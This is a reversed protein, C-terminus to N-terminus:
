TKILLIQIHEWGLFQCVGVMCSWLGVLLSESYIVVMYFTFIESYHPFKAIIVVPM